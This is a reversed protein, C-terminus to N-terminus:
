LSRQINYISYAYSKIKNIAYDSKKHSFPITQSASICKFIFMEINYLGETEYIKIVCFRVFDEKFIIIYRQINNYVEKFIIYVIHM